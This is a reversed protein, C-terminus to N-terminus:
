LKIINFIMKKDKITLYADYEMINPIFCTIIIKNKYFKQECLIWLVLFCVIKTWILFTKSINILPLRCFVIYSNLYM